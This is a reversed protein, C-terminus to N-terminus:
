SLTRTTPGCGRRESGITFVCHMSSRSGLRFTGRAPGTSNRRSDKGMITFFLDPNAEMRQRWQEAAELVVRPPAGFSGHNLFALGPELLFERKAAAGFEIM